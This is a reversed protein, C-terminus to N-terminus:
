GPAKEGALKRLAFELLWGGEQAMSRRHEAALRAVEARVEARVSVPLYDYKKKNDM